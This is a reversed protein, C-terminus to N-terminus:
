KLAEKTRRIEDPSVYVNYGVHSDNQIAPLRIRVEKSGNKNDEMEREDGVKVKLMGSKTIKDTSVIFTSKTGDSEAIEVRARGNVDESWLVRCKIFGRKM